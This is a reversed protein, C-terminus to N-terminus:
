EIEGEGRLIVSEARDIRFSVRTGDRVIRLEADEEPRLPLMFKVVGINALHEGDARELAASIRDLLVVGPVIPNGPFHGALAPHSAPIRLAEVIERANTM